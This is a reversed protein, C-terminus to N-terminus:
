AVKEVMRDLLGALRAALASRRHSDLWDPRPQVVPVGEKWALYLRELERVLGARDATPVVTGGARVITRASETAPDLIALVPKAADFYEYLKGPVMTPFGRPQWVLLVDATQQVDRAEAYSRPGTFEVVGELGLAVARDAYTRDYPGLLRARLCRRSEPHRALVDHVAALFVEVDPMLSLVGTFVLTFRSPDAKAAASRPAPDYGNPLHVIRDDPGSTRARLELTHTESACLVLQAGELVSRELSEQRARHWPTPPRRFSLSIWPDRFDAVWPLRHRGALGLAALHVSDPPSSSLMADFSGRRLAEAGARAARSSWGVYSDPMLFWDSLTRLPGFV